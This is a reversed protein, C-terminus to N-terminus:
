ILHPPLTLFAIERPGVNDDAYFQIVHDNETRISNMIKIIKNNSYNDGYLIIRFFICHLRYSRSVSREFIYYHGLLCITIGM